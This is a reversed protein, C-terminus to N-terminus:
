ESLKVSRRFSNLWLFPIPRLNFSKELAKMEDGIKKSKIIPLKLFAQEFFREKKKARLQIHIRKNGSELGM